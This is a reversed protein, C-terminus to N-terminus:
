QGYKTNYREHWTKIDKGSLENTGVPFLTIALHTKKAINELHEALKVAEVPDDAFTLGGHNQLLAAKRSCDRRGDFRVEDGWGDPDKVFDNCSIHGGFRDAQETTYCTIGWGQAAFAVVYPSHTHCIAGIEPHRRYIALHNVLDVSPKRGANSTVIKGDLSSVVLDEVTIERYPMGSPKIWVADGIRASVNGHNDDVVDEMMHLADLLDFQNNCNGM